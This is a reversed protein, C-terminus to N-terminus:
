ELFIPCTTTKEKKEHNVIFFVQKPKEYDAKIMLAFDNYGVLSGNSIFKGGDKVQHFHGFVDLDARRAKDWQSIAKFAPIFIGGIGGAYRLAHGHHFRIVFGNIDLYSLYGRSILFKVRKNDIFQSAINHYMFYEFSNGAETSIRRKETARGHNGSHCPIVLDLDTNALIYKIGAILVAQVAMIEDIPLGQNSEMLEPHISNSIFDGLLALVATRINSDRQERKLLRVTNRFFANAREEAIKKNFENLNDVQDSNVTEWYHWDSAVIIATADNLKTKKDKITYSQVDGMSRVADLKNLLDENEKLLQSYRKKLSSNEAKSKIAVKDIKLLEETPIEVDPTEYISKIKTPLKMRKVRGRVAGETLGLKEGLVNYTFDAYNARIFDNIEANTMKKMTNKNKINKKNNM